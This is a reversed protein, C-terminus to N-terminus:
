EKNKSHKCSWSTTKRSTAYPETVIIPHAVWSNDNSICCQRRLYSDKYWLKVHRLQEQPSAVFVGEAGAFTMQSLNKCCFEEVNGGEHFYGNQSVAGAINALDIHARPLVITRVGPPMKTKVEEKLGRLDEWVIFKFTNCRPKTAVVYNLDWQVSQWRTCEQGCMLYKQNDITVVTGPM